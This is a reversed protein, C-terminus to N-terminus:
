PEKVARISFMLPLSDPLAPYRWLGDDSQKLFPHSQYHCYNFEHLYEIRLGAEILANLIDAISHSWEFTHSKCGEGGDTYSGEFTLDLPTESHFYPYRLTPKASEDDFIGAMPHFESIYFFGGPKLYHAIIEAWPKLDPLWILVGASTYVVDFDGELNDKLDFIDSQIFRAPIKLESALARAQAIAEGSFDVGTAVAGRRAWSLTDMGFHCQLHLLEKGTVDGLERLDLDPLTCRGQRFADVDYFASRMHIGTWKDWTKRNGDLYEKM